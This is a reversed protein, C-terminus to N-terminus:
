DVVFTLREHLCREALRKRFHRGSDSLYCKVIDILVDPILYPRESLLPKMHNVVQTNQDHEDELEKKCKSYIEFYPQFLSPTFKKFSLGHFIGVRIVNSIKESGTSFREFLDDLMTKGLWRDEMMNVNEISEIVREFVDLNKSFAFARCILWTCDLAKSRVVPNAGNKLLFDIMELKENDSCNKSILALVLPPMLQSEYYNVDCDTLLEELVQRNGRFAAFGTANVKSQLLLSDDKVKMLDISIQFKRSLRRLESVELNRVAKELQSSEEKIREQVVEEIAQELYEIAFARSIPITRCNGAANIIENIKEKAQQFLKKIKENQSLTPSDSLLEQHQVAEKLEAEQPPLNLCGIIKQLQFIFNNQEGYAVLSM